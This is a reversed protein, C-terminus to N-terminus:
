EELAVNNEECWELAFQKYRADRFAYWEKDIGLLIVNDKFRRFAGKGRLSILLQGANKEDELNTAFDEMMKYEDADHQSSLTLYDDSNELYHKAIKIDEKQWEPCSGDDEAIRM